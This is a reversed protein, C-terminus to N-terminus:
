KPKLDRIGKYSSSLVLIGLSFLAFRIILFGLHRNLNYWITLSIENSLPKPTLYPLEDGIWLLWYCNLLNASIKVFIVSQFPYFASLRAKNLSEAELTSIM